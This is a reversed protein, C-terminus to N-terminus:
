GEFESCAARSCAHLAEPLPMSEEQTPHLCLAPKALHPGQNFLAHLLIQLCRKKQPTSIHKWFLLGQPPDTSKETGEGSHLAAPTATSQQAVREICERLTASGIGGHVEGSGRIEVETKEGGETERTAIEESGKRM